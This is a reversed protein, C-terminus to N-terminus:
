RREKRRMKHRYEVLIGLPKADTPYITGFRGDLWGVLGQEERGERFLSVERLTVEKLTTCDCAEEQRGDVAYLSPLRELWDDQMVDTDEPVRVVVVDGSTVQSWNEAFKFIGLDGSRIGLHEMSDGLITMTFHTDSHYEADETVTPADDSSGPAFKRPSGAATEGLYPLVLPQTSMLRKYKYQNELPFQELAAEKGADKLKWGLDGKEAFGGARLNVLEASICSRDVGILAALETVSLVKGRLGALFMHKLM